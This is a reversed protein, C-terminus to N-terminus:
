EPAKKNKEVENLSDSLNNKIFSSEKKEKKKINQEWCYPCINWWAFITKGCSKCSQKLETKCNPCFKFDSLIPYNCNICNTNEEENKTKDEIIKAMTDLNEDVENYCKEFLTRWPRIILYIFLWFPTLLLIILISIIQLFVSETRNWIDKIVWIILSIWIIFFYIIVFKIFMEFTVNEWIFKVIEDYNM